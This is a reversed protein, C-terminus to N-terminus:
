VLSTGTAGANRMAYWRSAVTGASTLLTTAASKFPSEQNARWRMLNANARENAASVNYGWAEKLANDHVTNVDAATMVDTDTLVRLPSGEDLAVGNAAMQAIQQGKLNRGRLGANAEAVQGRTIADAARLTDMEANKNSIGGQINYAARDAISKNYAGVTALTGGATQASLAFQSLM